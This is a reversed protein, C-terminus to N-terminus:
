YGRQMSHQRNMKSHSATQQHGLRQQVNAMGRSTIKESLQSEHLKVEPGIFSSNSSISAYLYREM